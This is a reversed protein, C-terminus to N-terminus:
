INFKMELTETDEVSWDPCPCSLEMDGLQSHHEPAESIPYCSKASSNGTSSRREKSDGCSRRVIKIEKGNLPHKITKHQKLQEYVTGSCKRITDYDDNGLRLAATLVTSLLNYPEIIKVRVSTEGTFHRSWKLWPFGDTYDMIIINNNPTTVASQVGPHSLFLTIYKEIDIYGVVVEGFENFTLGIKELLEQHTDHLKRFIEGKSLIPNIGIVQEITKGWKNWLVDQTERQSSGFWGVIGCSFEKVASHERKFVMPMLSEKVLSGDEIELLWQCCNSKNQLVMDIFTEKPNQYSHSLSSYFVFKNELPSWSRFSTLHALAEKWFLTLLHCLIWVRPLTFEVIEQDTLQSMLERVRQRKRNIHRIYGFISWYVKKTKIFSGM